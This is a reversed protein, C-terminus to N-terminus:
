YVNHKEIWEINRRGSMSCSPDFPDWLSLFPQRRVNGGRAKMNRCDMDLDSNWMEFPLLTRIGEEEEVVVVVPADNDEKCDDNTRALFRIWSTLFVLEDVDVDDDHTNKMV